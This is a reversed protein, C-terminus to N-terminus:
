LSGGVYPIKIWCDYTSNTSDYDHSIKLDSTDGTITIELALKENTNLHKDNVIINFQLTEYDEAAISITLGSKTYTGLDTTVNAANVKQVKATYSNLTKATTVNANFITIVGTALGDLILANQMLPYIFKAAAAGSSYDTIAADVDPWDKTLIKNYTITAWVHDSYTIDAAYYTTYNRSLSAM